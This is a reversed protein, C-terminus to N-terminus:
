NHVHWKATGLTIVLEDAIQRNTKGDVILALINLEQETLPEPLPPQAPREVQSLFPRAADGASTQQGLIAAVLDPATERVQPLLELVPPEDLFIRIFGEPAAIELAESLWKLATPISGTEQYCCAFLLKIELSARRRGEHQATDLLPQLISPVSEANGSMLLYRVLTLEAYEFSADSRSAQYANAWQAVAQMEALFLQMRAKYAAAVLYVREVGYGEIITNVEAFANLFEATDGQCAALHVFFAMGAIVHDLLMGQRSLALGENLHQEAAPLDNRELAIGGLISLALGLPPFRRDAVLDIATRCAQEALKLRGQAILIQAASCRGNVALHLVGAAQAKDSAQLFNKAADDAQGALEYAVGLSFHARAHAMQDTGPLNEQASTILDIAQEVDGRVAAISGRYVAALALLTEIKPSAPQAALHTEALAIRQLAEDFRGNMYWVFAASLSLRPRNAFVPEPLKELWSSYLVLNGSSWITEQQLALDIMDAMLDPDGSDLAYTVAEFIMDNAAHWAAAKKYLESAEAQSLETLLSDAFLHHYRYWVREHDLPVIFMNTQELQELIHQSNPNGTVAQCLETNFQKLVATQVLFQRMAEDQSHLVEDTLYDLVYRHSGSFTDMFAQHDPLNKLVFGALQLGAIWGETRAELASIEASELDLKMAQAYFQAAEDLSFRLDHMRIEIMEGRARLRSLPLPPDERSTIVLHMHHPQHEVLYRLAEHIEPHSIVHYDDLVLMLHTDLTSLDNLLDNLVATIPPTQAMEFLGLASGGIEPEVQQLAAIVYSLFRIPESDAEELYLWTIRNKFSDEAQLTHIWEAALSTKGYGAPAIMLTLKRQIRENLRQILRSRPITDPRRPPIHLKTKLLPPAIQLTAM